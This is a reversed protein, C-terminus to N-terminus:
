KSFREFCRSQVNLPVNVNRDLIRLLGAQRFQPNLYMVVEAAWRNASIHRIIMKILLKLIYLFYETFFHTLM